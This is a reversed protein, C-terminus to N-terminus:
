QFTNIQNEKLKFVDWRQCVTEIDDEKIRLYALVALVVKAVKKKLEIKFTRCITM